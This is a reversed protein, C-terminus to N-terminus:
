CAALPLSAVAPCHRVHLHQMVGSLLNGSQHGQQRCSLAAESLMSAAQSAAWSFLRIFIATLRMLPTRRSCLWVENLIIMKDPMRHSLTLEQCICPWRSGRLLTASIRVRVTGAALSLAAACCCQPPCWLVAVCPGLRPTLPVRSGTRLLLGSGRCCRQVWLQGAGWIIYFSWSAPRGGAARGDRHAPM